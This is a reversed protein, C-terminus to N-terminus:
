TLFNEDDLKNIDDHCAQVDLSSEYARLRNFLQEKKWNGPHVYILLNGQRCLLCPDCPKGKHADPSAQKLNLASM